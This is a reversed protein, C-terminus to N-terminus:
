KLLVMSSSRVHDFSRIRCIYTGSPVAHADWGVQHGGKDYFKQALVQVERGLIDYVTLTVFCRNPVTFKITTTSNFPNPYNQLLAFSQDGTRNGSYPVAAIGGGDMTHLVLGYGSFYGVVTAVTGSSLSVGAFIAGTFGSFQRFWTAGGNTTHLIGDDGVATGTDPGSFDVATLGMPGCILGSEQHLWSQGGDTTRYIDGFQGVLTGINADVFALGLVVTNPASTQQMWTAGADTTRLITSGAGGVTGTQRDGFSIAKLSPTTGIPVNTWTAGGNTTRFIVGSGTRFDGVAVGTDASCYAISWFFQVTDFTQREWTTGGNTTNLILGGQGVVTGHNTDTLCVSQLIGTTGSQQMIWTTGGDTTRQITGNNGVITGIDSNVFSVSTYSMFGTMQTHQEVWGSQAFANYALCALLSTTELIKM